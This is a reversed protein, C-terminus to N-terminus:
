GLEKGLLGLPRVLMLIIVVIWGIAYAPYGLFTLGLGDILGLAFGGAIAGTISGLGGLIVVVMARLMATGGVFPDIYFVPITIVAAVGALLSGVFFALARSRDVSMGMLAATDPDQAVARLSLGQKTQNIFFHLCFMVIACGIVVALREWSIDIQQFTLAGEFPTPVDKILPGFLVLALNSLILMLGVAVMFTANIHMRVKHYFVRELVVGILGVALGCIIFAGLFNMQAQGYLYFMFFGGLMYLEGHAFNFIRSIGFVLTFGSAILTYYSGLVLCFLVTQILQGIEM